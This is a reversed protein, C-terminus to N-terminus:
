SLGIGVLMRYGVDLAREDIDFQASHHPFGTREDGRAGVIFYAGPRQEQMFAMDEAWMVIEHPDLVNGTGVTARGVSRVVDNVAPDNVTPPYNFHYQFDVEVRMAAAVGHAIREIRAPMGARIERDFCRVTGALEAEAPIVNFTTGAQLKGVTIVAPDRAAIERSV